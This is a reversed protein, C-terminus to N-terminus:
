VQLLSDIVMTQSEDQCTQGCKYAKHRPKRDDVYCLDYEYTKRTCANTVDRM